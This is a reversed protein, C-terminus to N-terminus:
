RCRHGTQISVKKVAEVSKSVFISDTCRVAKIEQPMGKTDVTTTVLCIGNLRRRRAEEPFQAAPSVVPTPAHVWKHGPIATTPAQPTSVPAQQAWSIGAMFVVCFIFLFKRSTRM